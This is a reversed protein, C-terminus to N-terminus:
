RWLAAGSWARRIFYLVYPQGRFIIFGLGGCGGIGLDVGPGAAYHFRRKDDSQPCISVAWRCGTQTDPGLPGVNQGIQVFLRVCWGVLVGGGALLGVGVCRPLWEWSSVNGWRTDIDAWSTLLWYPVVVAALVPCLLIALLHRVVIM